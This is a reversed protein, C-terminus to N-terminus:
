AAAARLAHPALADILERTSQAHPDLGAARVLAGLADGLAGEDLYASAREITALSEARQQESVPVLLEPPLRKATGVAAVMEDFAALARVLVEPGVEDVRVDTLIWRRLPLECSLLHVHRDGEAGLNLNAGHRRYRNVVADIAAIEAVRSVQLAIWYDHWGVHAPFPFFQERLSARVMMAGSSVFNGLVLRSTVRGDHPVVRAQARFSRPEREGDPGIIAMDGYVLGAAPRRALTTAMLRLRDRPWEDDADLFTILEGRAAAIGTANAANAGANPQRISRIRDGYSAVVAPTDDTSGDDVVIVELRGAPWQQRLATDIARGLYQGYNYATVVCSILPPSSM